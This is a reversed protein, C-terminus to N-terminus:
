SNSQSKEIMQSLLKYVEGIASDGLKDLHHEIVVKDKRKAPGTQSEIPGLEISKSITEILLPELIDIDLGEQKLIIQSEYLLYNLFNSSIVAALHISERVNSNAKRCNLSLNSSCFSFLEQEFSLNNAEIFFPIQTVSLQRDKTFTQLPYLIGADDFGEFVSVPISGSTHVVPVTKDMKEVVSKIASDKVAIINLDVDTSLQNIQDTAKAEASLALHIANNLNFSYVGNIEIGCRKLAKALHTAVNGSGIINVSTIM